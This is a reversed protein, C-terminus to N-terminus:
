IETSTRRLNKIVVGEYYVLMSDSTKAMKQPPEEQQDAQSIYSFPESKFNMDSRRLHSFEKQFCVFLDTEHFSTNKTTKLFQRVASKVDNITTMTGAMLQVDMFLKFQVYIDTHVLYDNTYEVVYEPETRYHLLGDDLSMFKRLHYYLVFFCGKYSQEVVYQEKMYTNTAVQESTLRPANDTFEADFPIAVVRDKFAESAKCEPYNNTTAFLKAMPIGGSNQEYMNRFAVFSNGTIQKVRNENIKKELEESTVMRCSFLTSALEPTANNTSHGPALNESQISHYYGGLVKGMLEFLKSKGNRTLGKWVFFKREYNTGIYVSALIDLMYMFIDYEFSTCKCINIYFHMMSKSLDDITEVDEIQQLLTDFLNNTADLFLNQLYKLFFTKDTLKEYLQVHKSSESCLVKMEKLPIKVDIRRDSLFFEPVVGGIHGTLLDLVGDDVRLFWKHNDMQIDKREMSTDSMISSVVANINFKNILEDDPGGRGGSARYENLFQKIHNWLNNIHDSVEGANSIDQWCDILSNWVFRSPKKLTNKLRLLRIPFHRIQISRILDAIQDHTVVSLIARRNNEVILKLLSQHNKPREVYLNNSCFHLTNVTINVAEYQIIKPDISQIKELLPYFEKDLLSYLNKVISVSDLRYHRCLAYFVPLFYFGNNFQMVTKIPNTNESLSTHEFRLSEHLDLFLDPIHSSPFGLTDNQCIRKYWTKIVHNNTEFDKIRKANFQLYKYVQYLKRKNINFHIKKSKRIFGQENTQKLTFNAVDYTELSDSLNKGIATAYGLACTEINVVVPMMYNVIKITLMNYTYNLINRFVSKENDKRKPFSKKLNQLETKFNSQNFNRLNLSFQKQEDVYFLKFPVYPHQNPKAAGPLMANTLIDLKYAENGMMAEKFHFRLSECFLIYDDSAIEFEPLHVHVGRGGKRLAVIYTFHKVNPLFTSKLVYEIANLLTVPDYKHPPQYDFDLIISHMLTSSLDMTLSPRSSKGIWQLVFDSYHETKIWFIGGDLNYLIYSEPPVESVQNVANLFSSKFSM